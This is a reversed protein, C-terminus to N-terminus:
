KVAISNKDERRIMVALHGMRLVISPLVNRMQKVLRASNTTIVDLSNLVLMLILMTSVYPIATIHM